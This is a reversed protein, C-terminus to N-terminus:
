PTTDRCRMDVGADVSRCRYEPFFGGDAPPAQECSLGSACSFDSTCSAGVGGRPECTGPGFPQGIARCYFPSVCEIDRRCSQGQTGLSDCRGLAGGDTVCRLDGQCTGCSEGRRAVPACTPQGGDSNPQCVLLGSCITGTRTGGDSLGCSAGNAFATVCVKTEDDCVLPELCSGYGTCAQGATAKRRCTAGFGGDPQGFAAYLGPLCEASDYGSAEGEGHQPSCRGPCETGSACYLGAACEQGSYCGGDAPTNGTFLGDCTPPADCSTSTANLCAAARAGDYLTRGDNVAARVDVCSDAVGGNREVVATCGTATEFFGCRTGFNCITQGVSSCYTEITVSGTGGGVASGGGGFGGGTGGDTGIPQPCACLLLCSSVVLSRLM